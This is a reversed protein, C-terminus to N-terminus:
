ISNLYEEILCDETTLLKKKLRCKFKRVTEPTINLLRSIEKTSLGIKLYACFRLEHKTIKPCQAQLTSFFDQHIQEFLDKFQNWEQEVNTNEEIIRCLSSYYGSSVDKNEHHSTSLTSIKKLLDNKTILKVSYGILEKKKVRLESDLKLNEIERIKMNIEMQEHIRQKELDKIINSKRLNRNTIHVLYIGVMLLLIFVALSIITIANQKAKLDLKQELIRSEFEQTLLESYLEIAKIGKKTLGGGISDKMVVYQRYYEKSKLFNGLREEIDSLLSLSEMEIEASYPNHNAKLCESIYYKALGYDKINIFYLKGINILAMCSLSGSNKKKSIELAENLVALANDIKDSTILLLSKSILLHVQLNTDDDQAFIVSSKNFCSWSNLTDGINNYTLALNYYVHGTEFENVGSNLYELAKRYYKISSKNDGLKNYIVGLSNCVLAKVSYNNTNSVLAWALSYYEAAKIYDGLFLFYHGILINANAKLTDNNISNSVHLAKISFFYSSDYSEQRYFAGAKAILLRCISVSDNLQNALTLYKPLQELTINPPQSKVKNCITDVFFEFEDLKGQKLNKEKNKLIYAFVLFLAM